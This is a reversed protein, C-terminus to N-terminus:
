TVRLDPSWARGHRLGANMVQLRGKGEARLAEGELPVAVRDEVRRAFVLDDLVWPRVEVVKAATDGLLVRPFRPAQWPM